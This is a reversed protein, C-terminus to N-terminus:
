DDIAVIKGVKCYTIAYRRDHKYSNYISTWGRMVNGVPVKFDQRRDFENTWSTTECAHLVVGDSPSCCQFSFKRDQYKVDYTSYVGTIVGSKHCQYHLPKNRTYTFDSWECSTLSRVPARSCVFQFKRDEYRNGHESVVRSIAQNQPCEFRFSEKNQAENLWAGYVQAALVVTLFLTFFLMM